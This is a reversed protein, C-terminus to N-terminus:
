RSVVDRVGTRMRAGHAAGPGVIWSSLVVRAGRRWSRSWSPGAAVVPVHLRYCALSTRGRSPRSLRVLILRLRLLGCRAVSAAAETM